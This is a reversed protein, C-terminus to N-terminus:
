LERTELAWVATAWAIGAFVVTTVLPLLWGAPTGAMVAGAAGLLGAPTLGAAIPWISVVSLLAYFGLGAGAAGSQGDIVASLMAMVCVLLTAFALWLLTGGLLPGVPAEGFLAVTGAWCLTAEVGTALWLLMVGSAIKATVFAARSVPKTLVLIATGARKEASIMGSSAIVVAFLVVQTLNKTWQLYSDGYTVPKTMRVVVGSGSSAVSKLIEPTLKALVPSTVGVFVLIGPLVWIRWTRLVEVAEKRLFTTLGRM